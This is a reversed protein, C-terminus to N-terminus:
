ALRRGKTCHNAVIHPRKPLVEPLAVIVPMARPSSWCREIGRRQLIARRTYACLLIVPV